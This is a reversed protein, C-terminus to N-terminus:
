QAFIEGRVADPGFFLGAVAIVIVLVPTISFLTYYSLAAGMSPAYDDSWAAFAKRLLRVFDKGQMLGGRRLLRAIDGNVYKQARAAFKTGSWTRHAAGGYASPRSVPM